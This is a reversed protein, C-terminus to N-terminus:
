QGDTAVEGFGIPLYERAPHAKRLERLNWRATKEDHFYHTWTGGDPYGELVVFERIAM